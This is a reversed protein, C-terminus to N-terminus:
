LNARPYSTWPAGVETGLEESDVGFDGPLLPVVVKTLNLQEQLRSVEERLGAVRLCAICLVLPLSGKPLTALHAFM